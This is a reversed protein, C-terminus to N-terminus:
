PGFLQQLAPEVEGRTAVNDWRRLITGDAGILFVWPERMDNNRLLWDIATQNLQQKNYDRWVEVHIFTVRNGYIKQLDAIMDTVPGCFKSICFVPTSFVLLIPRRQQLAAKITTNHLEPDPVTGSVGARSDIAVPPAGSGIIDNESPIAKDGPAPVQPSAQVAFAATGTHNGDALDVSVQVGWFGARDFRIPDVSYVGRGQSPPGATPQAPPNAPAEGPIPLFKGTAQSVFEAQTTNQSQGLYFFQMTVSGYSVFDQKPTLLGVIFRNDRGALLEYSAVEVVLNQGGQNQSSEKDGGSCAVLALLAIGAAGALALKIVRAFGMM